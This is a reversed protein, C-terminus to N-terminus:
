DNDNMYTAKDRPSMKCLVDRYYNWFEENAPIKNVMFITDCWINRYDQMMIDWVCIVDAMKRNFWPKPVGDTPRYNLTMMGKKSMLLQTSNTCIIKRVVHYGRKEHKRVCRCEVVHTRLLRQLSERGIIIGSAM